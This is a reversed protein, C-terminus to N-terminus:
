NTYTLALLLGIPNGIKPTLTGTVYYKEGEVFFYIRGDSSIQAVGVYGDSEGSPESTAKDEVLVKGASADATGAFTIDNININGDKDWIYETTAATKAYGLIPSTTLSNRTRIIKIDYTGTDTNIGHSTLDSADWAVVGTNRFGNTGDVPTFQTFQGAGATSYWFTPKIGAGSSGTTIIFEIEEFAAASGIIIYENLAEFISTRKTPGSDGDIMNPVDTSITNDTGTTPNIFVGSDQHVPGVLAAAKLGYIDASGDTALVEVAFVDGGEAAIEDINILIIGEDKGALIDGTIYAIDIAKVDGFGAADADIEFAHDDAVIATHLIDIAGNVTLLNATLQLLDDDGSFGILGKKDKDVYLSIYDDGEAARRNINLSQGDNGDGVDANDYFMDISFDASMDLIGDTLTSGIFIDTDRFNIKGTGALTVDGGSLTLVSSSSSDGLKLDSVEARLYISTDGSIADGVYGTRIWNGANDGGFEVYPAAADLYSGTARLRIVPASNRIELPKNPSSTGIGLRNNTDDWFLNSNDQSILGGTGAFLVSGKTLGSLTLGAFTPSGQQGLKISALKRIVRNLNVWDNKVITPVLAM